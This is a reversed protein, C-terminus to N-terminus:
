PQLERKLDHNDTEACAAAPIWGVSICSLLWSLHVRGVFNEM